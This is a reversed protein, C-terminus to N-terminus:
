PPCTPGAVSCGTTCQDSCPVGCTRVTLIGGRAAQLDIQGGQLRRLTERNLKIRSKKHM